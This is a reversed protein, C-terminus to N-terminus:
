IKELGGNHQGDAVADLVSNVFETTKGAVGRVVARKSMIQDFLACLSGNPSFEEEAADDRTVILM